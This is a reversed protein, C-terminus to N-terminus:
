ENQSANGDGGSNNAGTEKVDGENVDGLSLAEDLPTITIEEAAPPAQSELEAKAEELEAVRRQLVMLKRTSQEARTTNSVSTLVRLTEVQDDLAKSRADIEALQVILRSLENNLEQMVGGAADATAARQAKLLEVRARAMVTEADSLEDTTARGDAHLQRVNQLQRERADEIKKLEEILPDTESAIEGAERLEDIRAVIAERRAEASVRNLALESLTNRASELQNRLQEPSGQQEAAEIEVIINALEQEAEVLRDELASVKHVYDKRRQDVIRQQAKRLAGQLALRGEEWRKQLLTEDYNVEPMYITVVLSHLMAEEGLGFADFGESVVGQPAVLAISEFDGFAPARTTPGQFSRLLENTIVGRVAGSVEAGHEVVVFRSLTATNERPVQRGFGGGGGRGGGFQAFSPTVLTALLLTSALLSRSILSM